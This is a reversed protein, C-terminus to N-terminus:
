SKFGIVLARRKQLLANYSHWHAMTFDVTRTCRCCACVHQGLQREVLDRNNSILTHVCNMLRDHCSAVRTDMYGRNIAEWSQQTWWLCQMTFQYLILDLLRVNWVCVGNACHLVTVQQAQYSFREGSWQLHLM